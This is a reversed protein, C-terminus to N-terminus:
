PVIEVGNADEGGLGIFGEVRGAAWCRKSSPANRRVQDKSNSRNLDIKGEDAM